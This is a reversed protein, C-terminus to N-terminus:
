EGKNVVVLHQIGPLELRQLAARSLPATPGLERRVETVARRVQDVRVPRSSFIGLFFETGPTEDLVLSGPLAVEAGPAQPVGGEGDYPHYATVEGSPEIGVLLFYGGEGSSVTFRLADGPQFTDGSVGRRVEGHRQVYFGMASGKARDGDDGGTVAVLMVAAAAAMAGAALLFRPWVSRTAPASARASEAARAVLMEVQHRSAETEAGLLGLRDNCWACADLHAAHADRSRDGAIIEDLLLDSLCDGSM